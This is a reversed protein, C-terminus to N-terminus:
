KGICSNTSKGLKNNYLIKNFNANRKQGWKDVFIDPRRAKAEEIM